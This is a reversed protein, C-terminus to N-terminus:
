NYCITPVEKHGALLELVQHYPLPLELYDRNGITARHLFNIRTGDALPNISIVCDTNIAITEGFSNKIEIFKCM